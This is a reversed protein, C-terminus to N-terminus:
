SQVCAMLGGRGEGVAGFLSDWALFFGYNECSGGIAGGWGPGCFRSCIAIM